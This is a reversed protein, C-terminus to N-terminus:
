LPSTSAQYTSFCFKAMYKQRISNVIQTIKKGLDFKIQTNLSRGFCNFVFFQNLSEKNTNQWRTSCRGFSLVM